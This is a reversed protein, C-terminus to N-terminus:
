HLGIVLFTLFAGLAFAALALFLVLLDDATEWFAEKDAHCRVRWFEWGLAGLLLEVIIFLLLPAARAYSM